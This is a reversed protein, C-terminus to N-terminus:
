LSGGDGKFGEAAKEMIPLDSESGMLIGVLPEKM